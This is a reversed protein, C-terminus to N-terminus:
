DSWSPDNKMNVGYLFRIKTCSNQNFQVGIAIAPALKIQAYTSLKSYIVTLWLLWQIWYKAM